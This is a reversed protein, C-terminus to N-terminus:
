EREIHAPWNESGFRKDFEAVCMQRTEKNGNEWYISQFIFKVKIDPLRAIQEGVPRPGDNPAPKCRPCEAHPFKIGCDPCTKIKM